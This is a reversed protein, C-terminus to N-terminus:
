RRTVSLRSPLSYPARSVPSWPDAIRREITSASPRATTVPSVTIALPSVTSTIIRRANTQSENKRCAVTAASHRPKADREDGERHEGAAARRPTANAVDPGLEGVKAVFNREKTLGVLLHRALGRGGESLDRGELRAHLIEGGDHVPRRGIHASDGRTESLRVLAELADLGLHWRLRGGRGDRRRRDLPGRSGRLGLRGVPRRQGREASTLMALRNQLDEVEDALIGLVRQGRVRLVPDALRVVRLAVIPLGEDLELFDQLIRRGVALYGVREQLHPEAVRVKAFRAPRVVHPSPDDALEGGRVGGALG